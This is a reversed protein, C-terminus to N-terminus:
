KGEICNEKRRTDIISIIKWGAAVKILQFANVGCHSLKDGLYFTYPTWVTALPGDIKVEYQHIIENWTEEHPTGVAKVFEEFKEEFMFVEGSKKKGATQLRIDKHVVSNLKSSDAEKMALFFTKIVAIAEADENTQSYLLPGSTLFFLILIKKM